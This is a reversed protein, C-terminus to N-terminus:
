PMYMDGMELPEPPLYSPTSTVVWSSEYETYRRFVAVGSRKQPSATLPEGEVYYTGRRLTFSTTQGPVVVVEYRQAADELGYFRLVIADVADGNSITVTPDPVPSPRAEFGLGSPAHLPPVAGAWPDAEAPLDPRAAVVPSASRPHGPVMTVPSAARDSYAAGQLPRPGGVRAGPGLGHAPRPVRRDAPGTWTACSPTRPATSDAPSGRWAPQAVSASRQGDRSNGPNRNLTGSREGSSILASTLPMWGRDGAGGSVLAVAVLSLASLVAGGWTLSRRAFRRREVTGQPGERQLLEEASPERQGNLLSDCAWCRVDQRRNTQGCVPCQVTARSM